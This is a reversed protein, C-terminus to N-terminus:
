WATVARRLADLRSRRSAPSDLSFARADGLDDTVYAAARDAADRLAAADHRGDFTAWVLEGAEADYEWLGVLRGRDVVAHSPLDQLSGLTRPRTATRAPREADAPDLLTALERRAAFLADLGSLFAYRPEAPAAFARFADADGPLLLRDAGPWAPVLGLPEAAARAARVGLGAYWQWEGLTAPGNCRFFREALAEHPPRADDWAPADDWRAYRYRQRDLRGDAPVRRIRGAAQLRGLALPLTTGVGKKKGAEGLSRAAGGVAARIGDPDLAGGALADVVRDALADVEADTVGLARAAAMDTAPATRALALALAYDEAPLVYTCGRAAPLEHVALAAVAADADARRTGARAWLTLYPGAGGVSRAWGSRALVAAPAAGALPGDLGQRHWWWARLHAPSATM